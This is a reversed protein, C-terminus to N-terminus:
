EDQVVGDTRLDLVARVVDEKTVGSASLTKLATALDEEGIGGFLESMVGVMEKVQVCLNQMSNYFENMHVENLYRVKEGIAYEIEEYQSRDINELITHVIGTEHIVRYIEDTGDPLEMDTYRKVLNTYTAIHRAEPSYEGREGLFCSQVVSDIFAVMETFSILKRITIERAKPIVEEGDQVVRQETVVDKKKAM